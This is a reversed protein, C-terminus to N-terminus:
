LVGSIVTLDSTWIWDLRGELFILVIKIIIKIALSDLSRPSKNPPNAWNTSRQKQVAFTMPEFGM